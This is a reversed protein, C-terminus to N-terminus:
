RKTRKYKLADLLEQHARNQHRRTSSSRAGRALNALSRGAKSLGGWAGTDAAMGNFLRAAIGGVKWLLGCIVAMMLLLPLVGGQMAEPSLAQESFLTEDPVIRKFVRLSIALVGFALIKMFLFGLLSQLWNMFIARTMQFLFMAIFISGFAILMASMIKAELIIFIAMASQILTALFVIIGLGYLAFDYTGAKAFIAFCTDMGRDFFADLGAGASHSGLFVHLFADDGHNAIDNIYLFWEWQTAGLTVLGITLLTRMAEPVPAQIKGSQLGYGYLAILIIAMSRIWPTVIVAVQGWTTTVFNALEVDYAHIVVSPLSM